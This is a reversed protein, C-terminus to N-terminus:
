SNKDILQSWYLHCSMLQRVTQATDLKAYVKKFKQVNLCHEIVNANEGLTQRKGAFSVVHM